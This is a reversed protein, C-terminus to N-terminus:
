RLDVHRAGHGRGRQRWERRPLRQMSCQLEMHEYANLLPDLSAEQLAVGIVARVDGPNTSVDYGAVHATGGSPPLLTTLMHVTTSKGAGNPGLFGYIEGPHVQVTEPDAPPQTVPPNTPTDEGCGAVGTALLGLLLSSKWFSKM